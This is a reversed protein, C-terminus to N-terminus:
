QSKTEYGHIKYGIELRIAHLYVHFGLYLTIIDQFPIQIPDDFKSGSFKYLVPM